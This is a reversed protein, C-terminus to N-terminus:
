AESLLEDLTVPCASPVPLPAQGDISKPLRRLAQAYLTPLDIRQRMSPAFAEAAEQRFGIAEARWHPAERSLPWAEAKLDHLLALVIHSRVASLQSRGVSEVEEIINPWDLDPDNVREGAAVRRLFAAQRESWDLTDIDYLDHRM